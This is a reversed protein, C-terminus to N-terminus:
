LNMVFPINGLLNFSVYRSMEPFGAEWTILM